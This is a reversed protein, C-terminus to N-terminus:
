KLGFPNAGIYQRWEEDSVTHVSETGDSNGTLEDTSEVHGSGDYYTPFQNNKMM